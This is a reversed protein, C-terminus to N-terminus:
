SPRWKKLKQAAVVKEEEWKKAESLEKSRQISVIGEPWMIAHINTVAESFFNIAGADYTSIILSM